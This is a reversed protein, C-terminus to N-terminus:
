QACQVACPDNAGVHGSQIMMQCYQSCSSKPAPACQVACPDNATVHGSAILSRCYQSCSSQAAASSKDGDLAAMSILACLFVLVKNSMISELLMLSKRDPKARWCSECQAVMCPFCASSFQEWFRRPPPAPLM